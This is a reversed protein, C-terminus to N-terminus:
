NLARSLFGRPGSADVVLRAGVKMSQGRREGQLRAGGGAAWEISQLETQDLYEVGAAIAEQLLFYDIDSRLWHTDAAEDNPSASVLLQNSRDPPTEYRAGSEHKFYTSGRKIGGVMQPYTRQWEGWTALPKLRPLDYRDALQGIILNMLPSTSEGIAFRPHASRDLLMVSRGARRAIMALLSGSFGSGIIALDFDSRM